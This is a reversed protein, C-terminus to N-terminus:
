AKMPGASVSEGNASPSLNNAIRAPEARTPTATMSRCFSFILPKLMRTRNTKMAAMMSLTAARKRAVGM